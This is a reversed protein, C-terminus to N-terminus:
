NASPKASPVPLISAVPAPSPGLDAWIGTPPVTLVPVVGSGATRYRLTVTVFTSLPTTIGTIRIVTGNGYGFQTRSAAPLELSSAKTGNVEISSTPTVAGASLTVGVLADPTSGTNVLTGILSATASGDASEVLLLGRAALSGTTVVAGNGSAPQQQTAANVGVGCGAATVSFAAAFLTATLRRYRTVSAGTKTPRVSMSPAKEM